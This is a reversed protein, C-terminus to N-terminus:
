VKGHCINHTRLLTENMSSSAVILRYQLANSFSCVVVMSARKQRSQGSNQSDGSEVRKRKKDKVEQVVQFVNLRTLNCILVTLIQIGFMQISPLNLLLVIMQIRSFVMKGM